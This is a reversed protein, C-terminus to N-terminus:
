EEMLNELLGFLEDTSKILKNIAEVVNNFNKTMLMKDNDDQLDAISKQMEKASKFLGQITSINGKIAEHIEKISKYEM